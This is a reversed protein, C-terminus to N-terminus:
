ALFAKGSDIDMTSVARRVNTVIQLLFSFFLFDWSLSIEEM